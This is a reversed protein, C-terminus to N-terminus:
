CSFWGYIFFSAKPLHVSPDQDKKKRYRIPSFHPHFSIVVHSDNLVANPVHQINLLHESREQKPVLEFAFVVM